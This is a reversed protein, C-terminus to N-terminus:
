NVDEWLGFEPYGERWRSAKRSRRITCPNAKVAGPRVSEGCAAVALGAALINKAAESLDKYYLRRHEHYFADTKQRLAWNYIFRCCGFTRALMQKQEDTPYM